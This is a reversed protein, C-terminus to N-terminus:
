SKGIVLAIYDPRSLVVNSLDVVECNVNLM